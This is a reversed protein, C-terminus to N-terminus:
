AHTRGEIEFHGALVARARSLRSKVTGEPVDLVRAAETVDMGLLYHLTVVQRQASSLEALAEEVELRDAGLGAVRSHDAGLRAMARVGNRLKRLRNSLLRFAVTRVWAEPDEYRSVKPWNQLLRIFAEQAVDEADARNGAAVALVSVLRGYSSAYIARVEREGSADRLEKVDKVGAPVPSPEPRM